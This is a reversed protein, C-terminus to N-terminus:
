RNMLRVDAPTQSKLVRDDFKLVNDETGLKWVRRACHGTLDNHIGLQMVTTM